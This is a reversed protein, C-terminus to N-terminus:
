ILLMAKKLDGAENFAEELGKGRIPALNQGKDNQLVLYFTEKGKYEEYGVDAIIGTKFNANSM